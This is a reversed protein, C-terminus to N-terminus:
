GELEEIRAELDAIYDALDTIATSNEDVLDALDLVGQSDEELEPARPTFYDIYRSHDKIEYYDYCRGESDEQWLYKEVVTFEDVIICDAYERRVQNAGTFNTHSSGVTKLIPLLRGKQKSHGFIYEM